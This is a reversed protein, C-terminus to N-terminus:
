KKRFADLAIVEGMKEDDSTEDAGEEPSAPEQIDANAGVNDEGKFQLSFNVSPDTFVTISELPVYLRCRRGGFYLTVEFGDDEVKLSEYQHQIVITMEEPHQAKLHSPIVAGEADTRYTIYFHHEGPLSDQEAMVLAQRIVIRLGDEIWKNYPILDEKM